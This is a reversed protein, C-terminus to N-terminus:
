DVRDPRSGYLTATWIREVVDVVTAADAVPARGLAERL